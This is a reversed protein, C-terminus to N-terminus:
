TIKGRHEKAFAKARADTLKHYNHKLRWESVDVQWDPYLDMCSSLMTAEVIERQRLYELAKNLYRLSHAYDVQTDGIRWGGIKRNQIAYLVYVSNLYTLNLSEREPFVEMNAFSEKGRYAADSKKASLYYHYETCVKEYGKIVRYSGTVKDFSHHTLNSNYLNWNRNSFDLYWNFIEEENLKRLDYSKRGDWYGNVLTFEDKCDSKIIEDTRTLDYGIKRCVAGNSLKEEKEIREKVDCKFEDYIIAYTIETDIHNVPYITCDDLSADHTRNKDGRGRNNDWAKFYTSSPSYINQGYRDDRTIRMTTLLLDGKQIPANNTREVIDAFSGFRNDELWGEAMSFIIYPSHKFISCKEPLSLLEGRNLIGQLISFIFYRSAFEEKTTQIEYNKENAHIHTGPKLFVNEDTIDIKDTDTWGIYLNEGNRILIGIKTGHYKQYVSLMNAIAKNQGFVINKKSIRILSVSKEPPAFLDRIDERYKLLGEFTEKNDWDFDYIATIKGLEEDLFRLKQYLVVPTDVAAAKGDALKSFKITEGMFCRISYLETDLVFLQNELQKMQLEMEHKLSDIYDIQEKYKARIEAEIKQIEKRKEEELEKIKEQQKVIESQKNEIEQLMYNRSIGSNPVIPNMGSSSIGSISRLEVINKDDLNEFLTCEVVSPMIGFIFDGYGIICVEDDIYYLDWALKMQTIYSDYEEVKEDFSKYPSIISSHLRIYGERVYEYLDQHEYFYDKWKHNPWCKQSENKNYYEYETKRFSHFQQMNLLATGIINIKSM